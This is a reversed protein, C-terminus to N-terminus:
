LDGRCLSLTSRNTNLELYYGESLDLKLFLYHITIIVTNNKIIEQAGLKGEQRKWFEKCSPFDYDWICLPYTLNSILRLPLQTSPYCTEQVILDCFHVYNPLLTLSLSSRLEDNKSSLLLSM